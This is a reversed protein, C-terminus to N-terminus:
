YRTLHEKLTKEGCYLDREIGIPRGQNFSELETLSFDGWEREIGIVFGYFIRTEPEYETAFWTWQSCPDFFKAVVIADDGKDDQSGLEAFRKEIDATILKM